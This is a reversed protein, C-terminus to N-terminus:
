RVSGEADLVRQAERVAETALTVFDSAGDDALLGYRAAMAPASAGGLIKVGRWESEQIAKILEGAGTGRCTISIGVAQPSTVELQAVVAEAPADAGLFDVEWGADIFREAAMRAPLGHREGAPCAMLLRLGNPDPAPVLDRLIAVLDGAIATARHEEAVSLRGCAWGEGVERLAPAIGAHIADGVAIGAGAVERTWRVLQDRKGQTLWGSLRRPDIKPRSRRGAVIAAHRVADERRVRRWGGPTRVAPLAGADIWRVVTMPAVQCLAAVETTSLYDNDSTRVNRVHCSSLANRLPPRQPLQGGQM